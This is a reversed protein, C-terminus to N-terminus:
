GILFNRKRTIKPDTLIGVPQSKALHAARRSLKADFPFECPATFIHEIAQKARKAVTKATKNKSSFSTSTLSLPSINM